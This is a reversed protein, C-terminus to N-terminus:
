KVGPKKGSTKKPKKLPKKASKKAPKKPPEGAAGKVAEARRAKRAKACEYLVGWKEAESEDAPVGHGFRYIRELTRAAKGHGMEAARRYLSLSKEPDRVEPPGQRYREAMMFM